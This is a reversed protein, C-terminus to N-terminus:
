IELVSFDEVTQGPNEDDDDDDEGRSMTLSGSNAGLEANSM